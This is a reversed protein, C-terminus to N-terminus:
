QLGARKLIDNTEKAADSLIKAVADPNDVLSANVFAPIIREALRTQVEDIASIPPVTFLVQDSPVILFAELQPIEALAPGYDVDQRNPLWGVNQVLWLQHEPKVAYEIFRAAHENDNTRLLNVPLSITGHPLLATAYPLDPAKEAIDGIVWSERIFMATTGLEFGEADGKLEPTVVKDRNVLDVYIQLAEQGAENDYGAYWKGDERQEVITGGYQHLITWWKEATGSGGGSLRLSWGSRVPEGAENRVTLQNAYDVYEEMTTPPGDLGAEAFMETNYFLAGQGRFLPVGYVDGDFSANELYFPAYSDSRVFDQLDDPLAPILGGQIFRASFSSSMELIDAASNSPLAVTVKREFDRLPQTLIEVKVDPYEQAFDAAVHEYFPEMEPYGSWITVTQALAGSLILSLLLVSATVLNRM